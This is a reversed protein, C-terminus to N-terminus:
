RRRPAGHAAAMSGESRLGRGLQMHLYTGAMVLAAPVISAVLYLTLAFGWNADYGVLAVLSAVMGVLSSLLVVVLAMQDREMM